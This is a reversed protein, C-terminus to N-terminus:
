VQVYHRLVTVPLENWGKTTKLSMKSTETPFPQAISTVGGLVSSSHGQKHTSM